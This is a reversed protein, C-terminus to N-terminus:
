HKWYRCLLFSAPGACGWTIGMRLLAVKEWQQVVKIANLLYLGVLMGLYLPAPGKTMASLILGAMLCIVFATIAVRNFQLNGTRTM